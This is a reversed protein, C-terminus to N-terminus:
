DETYFEVDQVGTLRIQPESWGQGSESRPSGAPKLAEEKTGYRWWGIGEDDSIGFRYKHNPELYNRFGKGKYCSRPKM